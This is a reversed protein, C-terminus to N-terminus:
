YQDEMGTFRIRTGELLSCTCLRASGAVFSVRLFVFTVVFGRVLYVCVTCAFFSLLLFGAFPAAVPTATPAAIDLRKKTRLM